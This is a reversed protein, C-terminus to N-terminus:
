RKFFESLVPALAKASVNHSQRELTRHQALPIVDALQRVAQRLVPFSKEGGIVLTPITVSAARETPLSYDGMIAADYPLTHAVAKLKSWAPLWRFAAVVIAPM